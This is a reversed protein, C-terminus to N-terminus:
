LVVGGEFASLLNSHAASPYWIWNEAIQVKYGKQYDEPLSYKFESATMALEFNKLQNLVLEQWVGHLRMRAGFIDEDPLVDIGFIYENNFACRELFMGNNEFSFDAVTDGTNTVEATYQRKWPLRSSTDHKIGNATVDLIQEVFINEFGDKSFLTVNYGGKTPTIETVETLFMVETGSKLLMVSLIGSVSPVSIIEGNLLNNENIKSLLEKGYASPEAQPKIRGSKYSATFEHGCVISSDVILTNKGGSVCAAAIGAVDAGLILKKFKRM